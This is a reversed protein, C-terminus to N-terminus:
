HQHTRDLASSQMRPGESKLETHRLKGGLSSTWLVMGFGVIAIILITTQVQRSPHAFGRNLRFLITGSFASLGLLLALTMIGVRRHQAVATADIWSAGSLLDASRLGSLVILINIVGIGLFIRLGALYAQPSSRKMGSVSFILGFVLGVLPVHNLILHIQVPIM